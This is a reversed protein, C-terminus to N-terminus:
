LLGLEGTSTKPASAQKKPLETTVRGTGISPSAILLLRRKAKIRRSITLPEQLRYGVGPYTEIPHGARRLRSAYIALINQAYLPGGDAKEGWLAEIAEGHTLLSRCRLLSLFRECDSPARALLRLLASTGIVDLAGPSLREWTIPGSM